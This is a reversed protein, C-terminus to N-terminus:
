PNSKRFFDEADIGTFEQWFVQREFLKSRLKLGAVLQYNERRTTFLLCPL